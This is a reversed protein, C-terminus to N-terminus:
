KQLAAFLSSSMRWTHKSIFCRISCPVRNFSTESKEDTDLVILLLNLYVCVFTWLFWMIYTLSVQFNFSAFPAKFLACFVRGLFFMKIEHSGILGRSPKVFLLKMSTCSQSRKQWSWIVVLLFILFFFNVLFNVSHLPSSFHCFTYSLLYRPALDRWMCMPLFSLLSQCQAIRFSM